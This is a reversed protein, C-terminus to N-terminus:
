EDDSKKEEKPAPEKKKAPEKAEAPVGPARPRISEFGEKGVVSAGKPMKYGTLAVFRRFPVVTAGVENARNQMDSIMGMIDTKRELGRDGQLIAGKYELRPQEGIILYDTNRTMGEGKVKNEKWDYYADVVIGQKSLSRIFEETNDKGDGTLDILGAIAVHMRNSPSWAPNILLDGPMLPNSNPDVVETIKASSLHPGLVDVVELAGKRERREGSEAGGFISFTLNEHSRVNDNSGLNITAREGKPDVGVIKGKPEDFKLLDPPTLQKQLKESRGQLNKVQQSLQKNTKDRQSIDAEAQKRQEAIKVSTDGFEALRDELAKAMREQIAVNEKQAAELKKKAEDIEARATTIMGEYEEKDKKQLNEAAEVKKQTNSLDARLKDVIEAYNTATKSTKPDWGMEADLKKVTGSFDAAGSPPQLQKDRLVALDGQEEKKLEGAYAKMLLSQYKYWDRDKDSGAKANAAEKAKNVFEDQGSYGMYTFVGLTISLIVFCVLAIILGQKSDGGKGKNSAM